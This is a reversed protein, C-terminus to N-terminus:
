QLWFIQTLWCVDPGLSWKQYWGALVELWSGAHLHFWCQPGWLLSHYSWKNHHGFSDKLFWCKLLNTPRQFCNAAQSALMSASDFYSWNLRIPCSYVVLLLFFFELMSILANLASGITLELIDRPSNDAAAFKAQSPVKVGEIAHAHSLGQTYFDFLGPIKHDDIVWDLFNLYSTFGQYWGAPCILSVPYNSTAVLDYAANHGSAVWSLQTHICSEQWFSSPLPFFFQFIISVCWKISELHIGLFGTSINSYFNAPPTKNFLTIMTHILPCCFWWCSIWLSGRRLPWPPLFGMSRATQTVQIKGLLLMTAMRQLQTQLTNSTTIKLCHERLM